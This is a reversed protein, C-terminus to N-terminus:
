RVFIRGNAFQHFTSDGILDEGNWPASPLRSRPYALSLLRQMQGRSALHVMQFFATLPSIVLIACLVSRTSCLGKRLRCSPKWFLMLLGLVMVRRCSRGKRAESVQHKGGTRTSGFPKSPRRELMRAARRPWEPQLERDRITLAQPLKIVSSVKIFRLNALSQQVHQMGQHALCYKIIHECRRLIAAPGLNASMNVHPASM